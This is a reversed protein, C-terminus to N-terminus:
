RKKMWIGTCCAGTARARCEVDFVNNEKDTVYVDLRIGKSRLQATLSKEAQPYRIVKIQIHLISELLQKCLEKNQLVEQFLFNNTITMADWDIEKYLNVGQKGVPM